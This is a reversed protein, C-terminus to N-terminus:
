DALKQLKTLLATTDIQYSLIGDFRSKLLTLTELSLALNQSNYRRTHISKQKVQRQEANCKFEIIFIRSVGTYGAVKLANNWVTTM